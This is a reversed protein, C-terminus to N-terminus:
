LYIPFLSGEYGLERMRKIWLNEDEENYKDLKQQNESAWLPQLNRWNFCVMQEDENQLNFSECPRVHDVHWGKQSYNDWTMGEQFNSELHTLLEKTTCNLLNLTTKSKKALGRKIASAVVARLNHKIKYEINENYYKMSYEGSKKPNKKWWDATAAKKSKEFKAKLQPNNERKAKDIQYREKWDIKAKAKERSKRISKENEPNGRWNKM